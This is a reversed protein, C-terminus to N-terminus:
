NQILPQASLRTKICLGPRVRFHVIPTSAKIELASSKCQFSFLEAFLVLKFFFFTATVHLTQIIILYDLLKRPALTKYATEENFNTGHRNQAGVRIMYTTEPELDKILYSYTDKKETSPISANQSIKKQFERYQVHYLEVKFADADESPEWRVGLKDSKEDFIEIGKPELPPGVVFFFTYM